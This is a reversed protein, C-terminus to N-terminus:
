SASSPPHRRRRPLVSGISAAVWACLALLMSIVWCVGLILKEVLWLLVLASGFVIDPLFVAVVLILLFMELM